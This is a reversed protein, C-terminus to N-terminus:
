HGTEAYAARLVESIKGSKLQISCYGHPNKKLYKQHYEEAAYFEGAPAIETVVPNRFIGANNLAKVATEASKKQIPSHYFIASRYQSGSDPGQRDKTTPDHLRFFFEVLEEYHIRSPDFTIEIAEAHGTAGSCVMEYGPSKVSGGTYGVRTSVVGEQEGFYKELGWFCGGAFIAKEYNKNMSGVENAISVGSMLSFVGLSVYIIVKKM